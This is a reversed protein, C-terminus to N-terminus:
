SMRLAFVSLKLSFGCIEYAIHIDSSLTWLTM